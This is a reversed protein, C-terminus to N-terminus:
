NKKPSKIPTAETLIDPVLTFKGDKIQVLVPSGQREREPTFQLPYGSTESESLNINQLRQLITARTPNKSLAKILAQTADFSNATRWSIGGGWQQELKQAFDKAQSTERFSSTAIILGEVDKGGKDLIEKTYLTYGGLIKLEPIPLNENNKIQDIKLQGNSRTIAQAISIAADTHKIDPFLVAAKASSDDSYVINEVETEADFKTATLDIFPKRVVKGGLKEFYNTFAERISKNNPSNSSAFIVARKLQLNKYTYEALKKGSIEDNDSYVSSFFVPDNLSKTNITPSIIALGAKEYEPLAAKTTDSSNHGIVGLISSDKALEQAVQKAQESKNSDNAIVIELLKGNLGKNKNFKDQAQAVGRLIEQANDRRNVPVVVALTFHSGKELALSNNYYILLEPDYPNAVVAKKFLETAEKYNSKKFAQMGEERFIDKDFLNRDGRSININNDSNQAKTFFGVLVNKWSASWRYGGVFLISSM